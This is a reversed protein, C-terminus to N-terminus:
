GLNAGNLLLEIQKTKELLAEEARKRKTIDRIVGTFGIYNGDTDRQVRGKDELWCVDGNNDLIRFVSPLGKNTKEILKFKDATKKRDNPHIMEFFSTSILSKSDIGYQETQPSIYEIIGNKDVIYIIDSLNKTLLQYKEESALLNHNQRSLQQNTKKLEQFSTELQSNSEKLQQITEILEVKSSNKELEIIKNKLQEIETLMTKNNSNNESM